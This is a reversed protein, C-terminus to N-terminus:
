SCDSNQQHRQNQEHAARYRLLSGMDARLLDSQKLRRRFELSRQNLGPAQHDVRSLRRASSGHGNPEAARDRGVRPHFSAGAGDVMIPDDFRSRSKAPNRVPRGRDRCRPNKSLHRLEVGTVSNTRSRTRLVIRPCSIEHSWKKLPASRKLAEAARAIACFCEPSSNASGSLSNLECNSSPPNARNADHGSSGRRVIIASSCDIRRSSNRNESSSRYRASTGLGRRRAERMTVLRHVATAVAHRYANQFLAQRVGRDLACGRFVPDAGSRRVARHEM